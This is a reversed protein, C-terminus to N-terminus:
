GLLEGDLLHVRPRGLFSWFPIGIPSGRDNFKVGELRLRSYTDDIDQCHVGFNSPARLYGMGGWQAIVRHTPVLEPDWKNKALCQGIQRLSCLGWVDLLHQHIDSYTTFCGEPVQTVLLLIVKCLNSLNSHRIFLRAAVLNQSRDSAEYSEAAEEPDMEEDEDLEFDMDMPLFSQPCPIHHRDYHEPQIEAEEHERVDLNNFRQRVYEEGPTDPRHAAPVRVRDDSLGPEEKIVTTSASSASSSAQQTRQQRLAQPPQRKHIRHQDNHHQRHEYSTTRELRRRTLMLELAAHEEPTRGVARKAVRRRDAPEMDM